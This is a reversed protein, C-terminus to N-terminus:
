EHSCSRFFELSRSLILLWIARHPGKWVGANGGEQLAKTEECMCIGSPGAGFGPDSCREQFGARRAISENAMDREHTFQHDPFTKSDSTVHSYDGSKLPKTCCLNIDEGPM